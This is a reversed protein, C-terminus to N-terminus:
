GQPAEAGREQEDQDRNPRGQHCEANVAVLQGIHIREM